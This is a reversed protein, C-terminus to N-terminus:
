IQLESLDGLPALAEVVEGLLALRNARLALDDDMVMVGHDRDFFDALPGGLRAGAAVAEASDRTNVASRVAISVEEAAVHLVREAEIQLLSADVSSDTAGEAGGKELIKRCRREADLVAAFDQDRESGSVRDHFAHSLAVLDQLHPSHAGRAARVCDVRVGEGTLSKEVRDDIFGRLSELVEVSPVAHGQGEIANAAINLLTDIELDYGYELVIRMIGIAARRLGHPDRSGTPPEGISWITVLLDIKDALAVIAPVGKDPLSGEASRPLFHQDVARVVSDDYGQSRAYLSGAFGELDAFEQVVYSVQDAKALRAADAVREATQSDLGLQRAIEHAIAIIRTTRDALSGAKAHFVVSGLSSAMNDLGRERDREFSFVADDLRGVLVREYGPRIADAAAPDGNMVTLFGNDLQGNSRRMPLYRQHSQMATVLVREPLELYREDFSGVVVTPLEVLHVVEDLVGAPDEWSGGADSSASDLAETIASRRDAQSVHVHGQNLTQAYASASPIVVERESGLFRHTRSINGSPVGWLEYSVATSDLVTCIWRIPRVFRHDTSGWRMPKAFQIREVIHQALDPWVSQFSETSAQYTAFWFLKGNDERQQLADVDLGTSRAFGEVAKDPAGVAPGRRDVTNAPQAGLVQTQVAFRRPGVLVELSAGEVALRSETLANEVLSPLQREIADCAWAPLEECGVEWLLEHVQSM